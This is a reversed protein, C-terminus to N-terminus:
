SRRLSTRIIDAAREAVGYVMGQLNSQPVFPFVSADVVRLGRAGYVRFESDVVGGKERPSMACTGCPHWNSSGGVAAFKKAKDLDNGVFADPHNRRGGPKLLGKMPETAAISELHRIARAHMELDIGDEDSLYKPDIVPKADVDSSSIHVTGTSLPHSLATVLTIFNGDVVGESIGGTTNRGAVNSQAAFLFYQATGEDLNTLLSHLRLYRHSDLPHSGRKNVLTHLISALTEQNQSHLFDPPPLYAYSTMGSSTFPGTQNAQYAHMAAAITAQDGRLLNDGTTIGDAVEYSIGNLLHDQLNTGVYPNPINVPIDHPSLITPDGVGSLELIKPSNLAGASIIIEKTANVCQFTGNQIYEVGTARLDSQGEIPEFVIRKVMAGTLLHVNTRNAFPSCYASNAYSRTKSAADITSPGNYAGISKGDFPNATLPHKLNEFTKVWASSVPDEKVGAFSAQLPGSFRSLDAPLWSLHLHEATADDPRTLTVYKDLYPKLTQYNWGTSGLKEWADIDSASPQILVEANIASSGGM